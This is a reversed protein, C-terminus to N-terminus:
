GLEPSLQHARVMWFSKFSKAFWREQFPGHSNAIFTPGVILSAGQSFMVEGQLESISNGSSSAGSSFANM